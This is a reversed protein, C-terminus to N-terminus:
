NENSSPREPGATKVLERLAELMVTVEERTNYIYFSARVSGLNAGIREHLPHACHYGSRVAVNYSDLFSAVLNPNLKGVNFSIIGGRVDINVPGYITLYKNLLEDNKVQELFFTTLNKEHLAVNDMGIRNLYKIAESLGIAGAINPTGPEMKWPMELFKIYLEGNKLGVREVTGGGTFSPELSEHIEKKIYLVGVGTPGLMKHGSFALFDVNLDRVSVPMHPVSQAGDVVLFSDNEQALKSVERIDVITGLVNSMHTIAIVKTRRDVLRVLEEYDLLYDDRLGAIRVEVGKLKAVKVWPLINSHHEMITIVINDGSNLLPAIMYATMNLAYTTGSTFVIEDSYRARIFDRVIEHAEEYMRSAEISLSYLGRHVNSNYDEYFRRVSEIVQLPKHSTAANDFYIIGRKTLLPFDKRLSELSM